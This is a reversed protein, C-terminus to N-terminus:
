VAEEAEGGSKNQVFSPQPLYSLFIDNKHEYGRLLWFQVECVASNKM